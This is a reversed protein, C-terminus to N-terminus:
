CLLLVMKRARAGKAREIRVGAVLGVEEGELDVIARYQRQLRYRTRLNKSVPVEAKGRTSREVSTSKPLESSGTM